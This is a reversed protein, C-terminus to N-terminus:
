TKVYFKGSTSHITSSCLSTTFLKLIRPHTSEIKNSLNSLIWSNLLPIFYGITMILLSFFYVTNTFMILYYYFENVQHLFIELGFKLMKGWCYFNNNQKQNSSRFFIWLNFAINEFLTMESRCITNWRSYYYRCRMCSSDLVCGSGHLIIDIKMGYYVVLCVIKNKTYLKLTPITVCNMYAHKTM